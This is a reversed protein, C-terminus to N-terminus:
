MMGHWVVGDWIHVGGFSAWAWGLGRGTSGRVDRMGIVEGVGGGWWGGCCGGLYRGGADLERGSLSARGETRRRAKAEPQEHPDQRDTAVCMRSWDLEHLALRGPLLHLPPSSSRRGTGRRTAIDRGGAFDSVVLVESVSGGMSAGLGRIPGGHGEIAM